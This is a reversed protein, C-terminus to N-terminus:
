DENAKVGAPRTLNYLKKKTSNLNISLKCMGRLAVFLVFYNVFLGVFLVVAFHKVAQSATIYCIASPILLFAYKELTPLLNKKFGSMVSNPIKKGSAYESRIKEYIDVMNKVLLLYVFLFGLLANFDFHVLPISQLLFAFISIFILIAVGSYLGFLRYRVAFFVVTAVFLIALIVLLMIKVNGFVGNATTSLGATINTNNTTSKLTLPKALASVQLQLSKAGDETQSYLPLSDQEEAVDFGSSYYNQGNIYMYLKKQSGNAITRTLEKFKEKGEATFNITVPYVSGGNQGPQSTGLTCSEIYEGTVADDADYKSSNATFSIGSASGILDFINNGSLLKQANQYDYNAVEIRVSNNQRTIDFGKDKFANALRSVTADLKNDLVEGSLDGEVEYICMYGGNLDYGYNIANFFGKYTTNTTPIVFSAFTLVLGLVTLLAILILKVKSRTKTM